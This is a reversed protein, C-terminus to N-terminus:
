RSVNNEITFECYLPHGPANRSDGFWVYQVVRYLGDGSNHAFWGTSYFLEVSSFPDVKAITLSFAFGRPVPLPEWRDAVRKEITFEDGYEMQRISYNTLKCKLGPLGTTNASEATVAMVEPQWPGKITLSVWNPAIFYFVIGLVIIIAAALGIVAVIRTRKTKM